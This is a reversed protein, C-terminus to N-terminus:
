PAPVPEPELPIAGAVAPDFGEPWRTARDYRAGTFVCGSLDLDRLDTEQFTAESFDVKSFTAGTFRTRRFYANSFWVKEFDCRAFSADRFDSNVFSVSAFMTRPSGPLPSFDVDGFPAISLDVMRAAGDLADTESARLEAGDREILALAAERRVKASQLPTTLMGADTLDAVSYIAVLLSTRETNAADAEANAREQAVVANQQALLIVSIIGPLAALCGFLVIWRKYGTLKRVAADIADAMEAGFIPQRKEQVAIVLEALSRTLPGGLLLHLVLKRGIAAFPLWRFSSEESWGLARCSRDLEIIERILEERHADTADMGEM